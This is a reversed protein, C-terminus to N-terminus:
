DASLLELVHRAQNETAGRPNRDFGPNGPMLMVLWFMAMLRRYASWRDVQGPTLGVAAVVADPDLLGGLRGSVHEVLDALEYASDSVGCDEFDVLRCREGDWLVNALNGDAQGLVPDLIEEPIADPSGLWTRGADLAASVMEPHGCGTVDFPGEAWTSV